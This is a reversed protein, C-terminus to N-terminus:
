RDGSIDEVPQTQNLWVSMSEPEMTERVTQQLATTLRELDVEADFRCGYPGVDIGERTQFYWGMKNRFIRETRYWTRPKEGTRVQDFEVGIAVEHEECVRREPAM